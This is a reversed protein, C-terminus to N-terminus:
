GFYNLDKKANMAEVTQTKEMINKLKHEFKEAQELLPGYDVKINLYKDLTEILKAASKSDPMNSVTESFFCTVPTKETSLLVSATPGMIIGEKLDELGINKIAERKAENNTYYFVKGQSQGDPSGVGELCILERANLEECVENIKEALPWEIGKSNTVMHFIMINFEENYFIGMPEVLKNEHLAVMAPVKDSRVRGIKETKLHDILFETTITGVLGFGPFGQIIIPNQPKKNLSIKM